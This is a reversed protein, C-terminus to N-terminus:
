KLCCINGRTQGKRMQLYNIKTRTLGINYWRRMYWKVLLYIVNANAKKGWAKPRKPHLQLTMLNTQGQCRQLYNFTKQDNWHQAVTEHVMEGVFFHCKHANGQKATAVNPGENLPTAFDAIKKM